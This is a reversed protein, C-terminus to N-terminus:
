AQEQSRKYELVARWFEREDQTPPRNMIEPFHNVIYEIDALSLSLARRLRDAEPLIAVQRGNRIVAVADRDRNTQPDTITTEKFKIRM